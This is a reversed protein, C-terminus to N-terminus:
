DRKAALEVQGRHALDVVLELADLAGARAHEHEVEGLEREEVGRAEATDDAGVLTGALLAPPQHHDLPGLRHLPHELDGAELLADFQDIVGRRHTYLLGGLRTQDTALLTMIWM